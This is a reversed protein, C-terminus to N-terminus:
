EKERQDRFIAVIEVKVLLTEEHWPWEHKGEIGGKGEENKKMGKKASLEIEALLHLNSWGSM